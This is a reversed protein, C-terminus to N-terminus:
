PQEVHVLDLRQLAEVFAAVEEGIDGPASVVRAGVDAVLTELAPGSDLLQWILAGTENVASYAATDLHLLVAGEGEALTRYVARESRTIRSRPHM